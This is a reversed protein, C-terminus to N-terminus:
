TGAMSYNTSIYIKLEQWATTLLYIYRLNRGHQLWYIYIYIKLEQWATTLLYIYTLNRGHQLWYIYIYIYRLNRGHQLWYIYIYRLNRDHWSNVTCLYYKCMSWFDTYIRSCTIHGPTKASISIRITEQWSWNRYFLM